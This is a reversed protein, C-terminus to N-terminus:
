EDSLVEITYYNNHMRQALYTLHLISGNNCTLIAKTSQKQVNQRFIGCVQQVTM